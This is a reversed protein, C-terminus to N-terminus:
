LKEDNHLGPFCIIGGAQLFPVEKGEANTIKGVHYNPGIRVMFPIPHEAIGQLSITDKIIAKKGALDFRINFDHSAIREGNTFDEPFYVLKGDGNVRFLLEGIDESTLETTFVV